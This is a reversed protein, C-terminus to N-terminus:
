KTGEKRIICSKIGILVRKTFITAFNTAKVCGLVLLVGFGACFLGAGLMATGTIANSNITLIIFAATGAPASVAVAATAAWLAIIGCWLAAYCSIMVSIVALLVSFWVPSGLVLLVIEWFRLRHKPTVRERVLKGFPIESLIQAIIESMSGLGAIAEEETMGEDIRDDIMESWFTLHQNMDDMPIGALGSELATLFEQKTM